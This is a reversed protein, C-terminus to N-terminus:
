NKVTEVTSLYKNFENLWIYYGTLSWHSDSPLYLINGISDFKDYIKIMPMILGPHNQVRRIIDNYTKYFPYVISIPNPIISIIVYKFGKNKYYEYVSNLRLVIDSVEEDPLFKFSSQDSLPDVTESLFLYPCNDLVSIEQPVRGFLKYNLWAKMEKLCSFITYDFLNFELNQNLKTNNITNYFKMLEEKNMSLDATVVVKPSNGYSSQSTNKIFKIKDIYNTKSKIRFFREAVEILLVNVQSTDLKVEMTGDYGWRTFKYSKVGCFVSGSKVFSWLYSDCICYLNVSRQINYLDLKIFAKKPWIENKYSPLFSIGYLDGYHYRSSKLFSATKFRYQAITKM